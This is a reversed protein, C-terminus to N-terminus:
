RRGRPPELWSRRQPLNSPQVVISVGCRWHKPATAASGDNSILVQPSQGNAIFESMETTASWEMVGDSITAVATEVVDYDKDEDDVEREFERYWTAIAKTGDASLSIQQADVGSGAGSITQPPSWTTAAGDLAALSVQARDDRGDNREWIVVASAGADDVSIQPNVADQGAESIAVASAWTVDLSTPPLLRDTAKAPTAGVLVGIALAVAAM